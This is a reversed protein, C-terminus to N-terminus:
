SAPTASVVLGIVDTALARLVGVVRRGARVEMNMGHFHEVVDSVTVADIDITDWMTYEVDRYKRKRAGPPEFAAYQNIGLNVNSDRFDELPKDNVIQASVATFM